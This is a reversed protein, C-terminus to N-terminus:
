RNQPCAARWGSNSGRSLGCRHVAALDGAGDRGTDWAHPPAALSVQTTGGRRGPLEGVLEALRQEPGGMLREGLPQGTM